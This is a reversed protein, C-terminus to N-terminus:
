VFLIEEQNLGKDIEICPVHKESGEDKGTKIIEAFNM